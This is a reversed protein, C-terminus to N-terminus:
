FALDHAQCRYCIWGAGVAVQPTFQARRESIFERVESIRGLRFLAELYQPVIAEDLQEGFEFLQQTENVLDAPDMTCAQLRMRQAAAWEDQPFHQLYAEIAALARGYDKKREHLWAIDRYCELHEPLLSQFLREAEDFEGLQTLSKALYLSSRWHPRTRYSERFREAALRYDKTRYSLQGALYQIRPSSPFLQVLQDALTRAERLAGRRLLYDLEMGRTEVSLADEDKLRELVKAAEDLDGSDLARSM